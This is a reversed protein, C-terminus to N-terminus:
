KKPTKTAPGTYIRTYTHTHTHMYLYVRVSLSLSLSACVWLYLCVDVSVCVCRLCAVAVGFCCESLTIVILVFTGPPMPPPPPPPSQPAHPPPHRISWYKSGGTLGLKQEELKQYKALLAKYQASNDPAPPAPPPNMSSQTAGPPIHTSYVSPM